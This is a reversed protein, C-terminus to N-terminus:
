AHQGRLVDRAEGRDRVVRAVGDEVMVEAPTAHSLFGHPSYTLGYAGANLVAVLDGTPLDPMPVQEAFQDAPTCLPGGLTINAAPNGRLDTAHVLLPPRRLVTGLGCAAAHQHMGGDLAVHVEEGSTKRRVVRTLYVGCPATLFRGLEILWVRGPRDHRTVLQQLGRGAAALDFEPDGAYAAIGFGGGLDLEDLSLGLEREWAAAQQVLAEAHKVFAAADFGQTGAYVHLGRLSLESRSAIDRLVEPVQAADIGFRSTRGSMRMRSGSLEHPLNVRVAIGARLDQSRAAAAIARVEDPSEVHFCGLGLQLAAEIEADTKGPGAFRLDAPAHGAAIALHLEGISAVEAGAGGARLRATVALSPNSKISYLVGIRPGIAQQVARLRADLVEASFAYLPTGFRECLQRATIGGISLETAHACGLARLATTRAPDDTPSTV